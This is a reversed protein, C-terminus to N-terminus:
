AATEEHQAADERATIVVLGETADGESGALSPLFDVDALGFHSLLDAYGAQTYAQFSQAHQTVNGRADVVAYRITTTHSKEDWFSEHLCIHPNDSFIGRQASYWTRGQEGLKKVADFTHAELLLVGDSALAHSAKRLIARADLARFVNFEGYLLMILCFDSGYDAGRIDDHIYTCSLRDRRAENQAYEISAPSWDIGVCEHGLRALRSTYLGPGCGLDLIRTPRRDLLDGHIWAVHQDIKEFRRSALDHEQSLHERLMRASFDPDDWPINDGEAWPEPIPTRAIFDALKM